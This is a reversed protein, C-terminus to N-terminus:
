CNKAKKKSIWLHMTCHVRDRIAKLSLYLELLESVRKTHITYLTFFLTVRFVYLPFQSFAM